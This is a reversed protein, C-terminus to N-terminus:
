ARRGARPRGPPVALVDAKVAAEECFAELEADLLGHTVVVAVERLAIPWVGRKSVVQTAHIFVSKTKSLRHRYFVKLM